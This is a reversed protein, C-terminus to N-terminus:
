EMNVRYTDLLQSLLSKIIYYVAETTAVNQTHQRDHISYAENRNVVVVERETENAETDHYHPTM